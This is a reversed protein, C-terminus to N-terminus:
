FFTSFLQSFTTFFNIFLLSFTSFFCLFMALLALAFAFRGCLDILQFLTGRALDAFVGFREHRQPLLAILVPTPRFLVLWVGQHSQNGLLNTNFPVFTLEPPRKNLLFPHFHITVQEQYRNSLCPPVQGKWANFFQINM